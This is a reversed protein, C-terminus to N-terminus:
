KRFSIAKLLSKFRLKLKKKAGEESEDDEDEEDEDEEDEEDEEEDDDEEDEEDDDEDEDPRRSFVSSLMRTFRSPQRKLQGPRPASSSPASGDMSGLTSSRKIREYADSKQFKGSGGATAPGAAPPSSSVGGMTVTKKGKPTLPPSVASQQQQQAKRIMDASERAESLQYLRKSLLTSQATSRALHRKWEYQLSAGVVRVPQFDYRLVQMKALPLLLGTMQRWKTVHFLHPHDPVYESAHVEAIATLAAVHAPLHPVVAQLQDFHFEDGDLGVPVAMEAVPGTSNAPVLLAKRPLLALRWDIDESVLGRRSRQRTLRAHAQEYALQAQLKSLEARYRAYNKGAAMLKKLQQLQQLADRSVQEFSLALRSVCGQQLATLVAMLGLFNGLQQLQQALTIFKTILLGRHAPSEGALVVSTVWTSASNFRDVLRKVGGFDMTDQLLKNGAFPDEDTGVCTKLIAHMRLRQFLAADLLTWQRALETPDLDLLKKAFAAVSDVLSVGPGIRVVPYTVGDEGDDGDGYTNAPADDEDDDDSDSDLLAEGGFIELKIKPGETLTKKLQEKIEAKLQGDWAGETLFLQPGTRPLDHVPDWHLQEDVHEQLASRVVQRLRELKAVFRDVLRPDLGYASCEQQIGIFTGTETTAFTNLLMLHQSHLFMRFQVVWFLLFELAGHVIEETEPSLKRMLILIRVLIDNMPVIQPLYVFAPEVINEWAVVDCSFDDKRLVQKGFLKFLGFLLTNLDIGIIEQKKERIELELNIWEDGVNDLIDLKGYSDIFDPQLGSM